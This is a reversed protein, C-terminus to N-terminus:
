CSRWRSRGRCGSRFDCSAAPMPSSAATVEPLSFRAHEAAVILDCALALEFGGGAAYGNVAAIVPKDLDFM